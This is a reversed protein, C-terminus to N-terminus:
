NRLLDICMVVSERDCEKKIFYKHIGFDHVRAIDDEHELDSMIVVPIHAIEPDKKIMELIEFGSLGSIILDMIIVHPKLQKVLAIGDKGNRATHINWGKLHFASGYHEHIHDESDIHVIVFAM